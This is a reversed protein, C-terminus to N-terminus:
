PRLLHVARDLEPIYACKDPKSTNDLPFKRSKRYYIAQRAQVPGLFHQFPAPYNISPNVPKQQNHPLYLCISKKVFSTPFFTVLVLLLKEATPDFAVISCVIRIKSRQMLFPIHYATSSASSDRGALNYDIVIYSILPRQAIITM